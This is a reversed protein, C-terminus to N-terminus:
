KKIKSFKIDINLKNNFNFINNYIYNSILTGLYYSFISIIVSSIYGYLIYKFKKSKIDINRLDCFKVLYLLFEYIIIKLIMIRYNNIGFLIGYVFFVIFHTIYYTYIEINNYDIEDYNIFLFKDFFDINYKCKLIYLILLSIFSLLIYTYALITKIFM